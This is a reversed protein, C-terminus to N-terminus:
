NFAQAQEYAVPTMYDISSHIRKRNYYNDIYEALVKTAERHSAFDWHRRLEFDLTSFFSEAMANDYCNGTRSMSAIAGMKKLEALYFKSAYQCGRDTHVILGPPPSRMTKAKQLAAVVLNADPSQSTAWGVVRRSFVDVIVALYSWGDSTDVFTIDGVWIQNEAEASFDQELLNPAFPGDHNSDTTQPRFGRKRRAVLKYERMLSAVRKCSVRIGQTRLTRHIRPSGYNGLHEEFVARICSVLARCRQARRPTRSLQDYYSSKPVGLLRCSETVGLASKGLNVM